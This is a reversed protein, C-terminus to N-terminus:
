EKKQEIDRLGDIMVIHIRKKKFDVSKVVDDIVPIPLEGTETRILYVDNAPMTWWELVTGIKEGTGWELVEFGEVNDDDSDGNSVTSNENDNTGKPEDLNPKTDVFIGFEVTSNAQEVTTVFDLGLICGRATKAYFTIAMSKAGITSYGVLVVDGVQPPEVGRRLAGVSVRGNVGHARLITGFHQHQESMFRNSLHSTTISFEVIEVFSLASNSFDAELKLQCKM